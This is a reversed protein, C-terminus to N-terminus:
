MSFNFNSDMHVQRPLSVTLWQMLNVEIYNFSSPLYIMHLPFFYGVFCPIILATHNIQIISPKLKM